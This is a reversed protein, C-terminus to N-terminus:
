YRNWHIRNEIVEEKQHPPKSESPYGLAIICLVRIHKPIGLLNRLYEESSMNENYMRRRIQIWCAGLGLATSALQIHEAAISADEIWVTSKNEDACVVVGVSAEELM